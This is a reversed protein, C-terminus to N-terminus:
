DTMEKIKKVLFTNNKVLLADNRRLFASNKVLFAANKGFFASNKVLFAANKRLFAGNKVLFAANKRLFVSNKVLFAVNKRLFASNNEQKSGWNNVFPISYTLILNSQNFQWKKRLLLIASGALLAVAINFIIIETEYLTVNTNM